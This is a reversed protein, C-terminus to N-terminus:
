NKNTLINKEKHNRLERMYIVQLEAIIKKKGDIYKVTHLRNMKKKNEDRKPTATGVVSKFISKRDEPLVAKNKLTNLKVIKKKPTTIKESM